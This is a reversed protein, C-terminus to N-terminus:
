EKEKNKPEASIESTQNLQQPAQQNPPYLTYGTVIPIFRVNPYSNSHAIMNPYYPNWQMQYYNNQNSNITQSQQKVLEIQQQTIPEELRPLTFYFPESINLIVKPEFVMKQFEFSVKIILKLKNKHQNENIDVNKVIPGDFYGFLKLSAQIKTLIRPLHLTTEKENSSAIAQINSSGKNNNQLAFNSSLSISEDKKVAIKNNSIPPKINQLTDNDLVLKLEEWCTLSPRTAKINFKQPNKEVQLQHPNIQKSKKENNM